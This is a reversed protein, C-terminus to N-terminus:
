KLKIEITNEFIIKDKDLKKMHNENILLYNKIKKFHWTNEFEKLPKRIRYTDDLTKIFCYKSNKEKEIYCIDNISIKCNKNITLFKKPELVNIAYLITDKLEQEFEDLKSLYTLVGLRKSIVNEKENHVSSIIIISDWDKASERIERCVDYGSYTDLMMDVIYIKIEHNHIINKLEENYNIFSEIKYDLKNESLVQKINECIMKNCEYTNEIIVIKM